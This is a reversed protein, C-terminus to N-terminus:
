FPRLIHAIEAIFIIERSRAAEFPSADWDGFGDRVVLGSRAILTEVHERSPFRLTSSTTLTVHPFRYCTQFSIFEGDSGTIELTEFLQGGPLTRVLPPRAAWEAAWDVRPNRTEFAVRGREKLHSRMTQLVALADTDTLLVQFAHGTMVILDFRRNSKYSQAFSEVWEVKEAHPKSRAVALMAAAPDVGTVWHGREALACCLTGTGCGLDLVDCPRVGALSLYFDTNQARPNAIDYIEAIQANQYDMSTASRGLGRVVSTVPHSLLLRLAAELGRVALKTRDMVNVQTERCQRTHKLFLCQSDNVRGLLLHSTSEGHPSSM